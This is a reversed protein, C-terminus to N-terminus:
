PLIKLGYGNYTGNPRRRFKSEIINWDERPIKGILKRGIPSVVLDALQLGAINLSKHRLTLDIIRDNFRNTGAYTTGSKQLDIWAKELQDDLDIGRKEAYIIGGDPVDGIEHCFREVLVELSYMYPDVANDGYRERHEPKRIVCAVVTYELERMMTNLETYFETRLATDELVAFAKKQRIIDITHLVVNEDDFFYEKLERMRPAVVTRAYTRDLIVGGLVFVPYDPDIKVLNHDGSEDLFLVKM